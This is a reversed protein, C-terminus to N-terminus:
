MDSMDTTEVIGDNRPKKLDLASGGSQHLLIHEGGDLFVGNHEGCVRFM